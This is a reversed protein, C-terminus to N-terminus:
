ILLDINFDELVIDRNRQQLLTDYDELFDKFNTNGPNYVIGIHLAYRELQIWLYNNGGLYKSESLSSKLDKHIFASVGGGKSNTRYNYYHLYNDLQLELAQAESHIWTETLAEGKRIPEELEEKLSKLYKQQTPTQDSFIKIHEPLKDKNRLLCKAPYPADYCVKVRRNKGPIYKGIRTVRIPKPLETAAKRKIEDIWKEKQRGRLRKNTPEQWTTVRPTWKEKDM